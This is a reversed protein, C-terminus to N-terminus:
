TVPLYGLVDTGIGAMMAVAPGFLMGIAANCLFGFGIRPNPPLKITLGLLDLTIIVAILLATLAPLAYKEARSLSSSFIRNKKQM